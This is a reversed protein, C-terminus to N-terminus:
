PMGPKDTLPRGFKQHAEQALRGAWQPDGLIRATEMVARFADASPVTQIFKLLTARALPERGQSAYLLALNCWAQPNEPFLAIERRFAEEAQADRGLRALVDGRLANALSLTPVNKERTLKEIEDLYNLAGPLDGRERAIRALILLPVRRGPREGLALRAESEATQLDHRAIAIQALTQHVHPAGAAQALLAYRRAEELRGAELLFTATELLLPGNGPTLRDASRYADLAEDERGLRHLTQAYLQWAESMSPQRKLLASLISNARAFEGKSYFGFAEKLPELEGIKDKPDPLDGSPPGSNKATL